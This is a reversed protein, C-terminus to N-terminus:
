RRTSELLIDSSGGFLRPRLMFLRALVIHLHLSLWLVVISILAYLPGTPSVLDGAAIRGALIAFPLLITFFFIVYIFWLGATAARLAVQRKVRKALFSKKDTEHLEHLLDHASSLGAGLGTMLLYSLLGIVMWFVFFLIRNLADNGFVTNGFAEVSSRSSEILAASSGPGFLYQYLQGSKAAYSFAAGALVLGTVATVLVSSSLSPTLLLHAFRLNKM